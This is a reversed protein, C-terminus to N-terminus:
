RTAHHHKADVIDCRHDGFATLRYRRIGDDTKDGFRATDRNMSQVAQVDDREADLLALAQQWGFPAIGAVLWEKGIEFQFGLISLAQQAINRFRERM